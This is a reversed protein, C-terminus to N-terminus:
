SAASVRINGNVGNPFFGGRDTSTRTLYAINLVQGTTRSFALGNADLPAINSTLTDGSGSPRVGQDLDPAGDLTDRANSIAESRDFVAPTAMGKMHISARLIASHYAEVALIGASADIFTKNTLLPAAGKYATVGVDEFLFAALLFNEENLYPDFSEGEGILGASRAALSFASTPSVSLDIAPQAIAATGLQNRLFAVHTRENLTIERAMQGLVADTFTVQRGGSVAGPTGTGTRLEAPLQEGLVAISYFNSELYELNLAFNLVDADTPAATQAEALQNGGILSLGGGLATALGLARFFNRRGPVGEAEPSRRLAMMDPDTDM